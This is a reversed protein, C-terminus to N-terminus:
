RRRGRAVAREAEFLDALPGYLPHRENLWYRAAGHDEASPVEVVLEMRDMRALSNASGQPSVGSWLAVDWPRSPGGLTSELRFLERLTRLTAVGVFLEDLPWGDKPERRLGIRRIRSM